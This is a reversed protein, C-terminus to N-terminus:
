VYRFLVRYIATIVMSIDWASLFLFENIVYHAKKASLVGHRGGAPPVGRGGFRPWRKQEDFWGASTLDALCSHISLFIGISWTNPASRNALWFIAQAVESLLPRTPIKNNWDRIWRHVIAHEKKELLIWGWQQEISFIIIAAGEWRKTNQSAADEEENNIVVVVSAAVVM